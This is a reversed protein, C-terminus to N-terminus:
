RGKSVNQGATRPLALYRVGAIAALLAGVIFTPAFDELQVNPHALDRWAASLNLLLASLAIGVARTVHQNVSAYTVAGTMQDKPVDAFQLAALATLQLSRAAGSALLLFLILGLSTQRDVGVFAAIFLGFGFGSFILITRFGVRNM